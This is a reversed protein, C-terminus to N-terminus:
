KQPYKLLLSVGENDDLFEKEPLPLLIQSITHRLYVLNFFLLGICRLWENMGNLISLVKLQCSNAIIYLDICKRVYSINYIGFFAGQWM